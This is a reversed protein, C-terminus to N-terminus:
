VWSKRIENGMNRIEIGVKEKGVKEKRMGWKRTKKKLKGTYVWFSEGKGNWYTEKNEDNEKEGIHKRKKEM